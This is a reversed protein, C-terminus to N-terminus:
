NPISVRSDNVALAWLSVHMAERSLVQGTPNGPNILVFGKVNIGEDKAKALSEELHDISISWGTALCDYCDYTLNCDICM